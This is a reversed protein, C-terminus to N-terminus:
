SQCLIITKMAVMGIDLTEMGYSLVLWHSVASSINQTILIRERGGWDEAEQLRGVSTEM